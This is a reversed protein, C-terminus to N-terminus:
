KLPLTIRTTGGPFWKTTFGLKRCLRLMKDNDTLVDGHIEHLGKWRAINIVAEM